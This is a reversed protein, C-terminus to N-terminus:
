SSVDQDMPLLSLMVQSHSPSRSVELDTGGGRHCEKELLAV